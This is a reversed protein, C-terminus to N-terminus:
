GGLPSAEEGEPKRLELGEIRERRAVAEYSKV